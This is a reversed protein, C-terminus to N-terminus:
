VASNGYLDTGGQQQLETLPVLAEPQSKIRLIRWSLTQDLQTALQGVLVQMAPTIWLDALLWPAPTPRLSAAAESQYPDSGRRGGLDCCRTTSPRIPTTGFCRWFPATIPSFARAWPTSSMAEFAPPM